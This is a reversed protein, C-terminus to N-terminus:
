VLGRLKKIVLHDFSDVLRDKFAIRLLDRFSHDPWVPEGLEGEAVSIVNAGLDMDAKIRVWKTQALLAAEAETIHWENSRGDPGPLKVPWLFVNEQRTIATFVTCFRFEGPLGRAITPTLLYFQREEKFQILAFDGRYEADPHVRVFVQPSPKRVHVTMLLKKVSSTGFSQDLRLAAPDFPDLAPQAPEYNNQSAGSRPSEGGVVDAKGAPSVAMKFRKTM